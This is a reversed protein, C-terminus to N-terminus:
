TSSLTRLVDKDIFYGMQGSLAQQTRQLTVIIKTNYLTEAIINKM